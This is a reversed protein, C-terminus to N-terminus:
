SIALSQKRHWTFKGSLALWVREGIRLAWFQCDTGPSTAVMEPRKQGLFPPPIGPCQPGIRPLACQPIHDRNPVPTLSRIDLWLLTPPMGTKSDINTIDNPLEIEQADYYVSDASSVASTISARSLSRQAVESDQRCCVAPAADAYLVHGRTAVM